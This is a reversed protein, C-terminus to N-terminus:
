KKWLVVGLTVLLGLAMVVLVAIVYVPKSRAPTNPRRAAISRTSRRLDAESAVVIEPLAAKTPEPETAIESEAQGSESPLNPFLPGALRWEPWGERWVLTDASVRGEALWKQMVEGRAPGYEGGSPPRVYWVADSSEAFIGLLQDSANAQELEPAEFM